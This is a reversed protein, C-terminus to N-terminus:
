ASQEARQKATITFWAQVPLDLVHVQDGKVGISYHIDGTASEREAVQTECYHAWAILDALSEFTLHLADSWSYTTAIWPEPLPVTAAHELVLAKAKAMKIQNM